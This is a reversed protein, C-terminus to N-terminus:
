IRRFRSLFKAANEKIFHRETTNCGLYYIAFVVSIVCLISSVIFYFVSPTYSIAVITPLVIAVGTVKLVNFLVHRLFVSASLGIMNRLFVLRAFLCVISLIIAVVTIVEPFVGLRLLFYSIPLNMMQLGGVVIQYNRINGTALMATILPNSIAECLSFILVLRVYLIVHDPVQSLWLDILFETNFLIPLALVLLLYYSFRASRFILTMLYEKDGVAYSKTIQPSLATMFNGVFGGVANSVQQAIGRAANLTPGYFVNLVVNCGQDRLVASSAGIFNWGAFGTMERLLAKDLKLRFRCEKFHKNCYIWYVFQIILGVGLLMASYCILKDIGSPLCFLLLVILLRLFVDLIGIYAFVDMHEHAMISANYPVSILSLAFSLMSFQLLINAAFMREQPIVMKQNLFWVGVTEILFIIIAALIMQVVLSTSFIDALRDQDGKGLEFTLFRSIASSLSGSLLSFMGVVGGVVNQIGYDEVGLINLVVRSTYLSVLLSFLMRGYLMLTNKAIRKTNESHDQM